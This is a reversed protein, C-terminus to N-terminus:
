HQGQMGLGNMRKVAMTSQDPLEGLFMFGIQWKFDDTETDRHGPQYASIFMNEDLGEVNSPASSAVWVSSLMAPLKFWSSSSKKVHQPSHGAGRSGSSAM